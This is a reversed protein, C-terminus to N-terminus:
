YRRRRSYCCSFILLIAIIFITSGLTYDYLTAGVYFRLYADIIYLLIVISNAIIGIIGTINGAQQMTNVSEYNKAKKAFLVALIGLILGVIFCILPIVLQLTPPKYVIGLKKFDESYINSILDAYIDPFIDSVIDTKAYVVFFTILLGIGVLICSIIGMFLTKRSETQTESKTDSLIIRDIIDKPPTSPTDQPYESIPTLKAGCKPCYQEGENVKEGCNPCFMYKFRKKNKDIIITELLKNIKDHFKKQVM